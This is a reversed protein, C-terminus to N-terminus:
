LLFAEIHKVLFDLSTSESDFTFHAREYYSLRDKLKESIVKKLDEDSLNAILPRKSRNQKLREFLTGESVKLYIILGNQDLFNWSLDNCCAGGGLSIVSKSNSSYSFLINQEIKRFYDEGKDTFIESISKGEKEEIRNDLDFYPRNIKEGLQVGLSSKGSGMFGILYINM